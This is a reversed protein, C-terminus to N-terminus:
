REIAKWTLTAVVGTQALNAAKQAAKVKAETAAGFVGDVVLGGLAKQLAKVATGSSGRKLVVGWYPLLPHVRRELADWTAHDVVGSRPLGASGQFSLVRMETTAGFQGDVALAGLARQLVKVAAGTSGRRLTTEKLATFETATSATTVGAPKAAPAAPAATTRAASSSTAPAATTAPTMLAAWLTADAVGTVVLDRSRQYAKVRAVTLPGYTGDAKLGGLAKQLATVAEGKSWQTLRLRAYRALPSAPPVKTVVPKPTSTGGGSAPSGMLANWTRSDVVGTVALGKSKQYAKVRSETLPGFVGDAVVGGIAKQMATVAPGSSGLRLTLSAYAALPSTSSGPTVSGATSGGSGSTSGSKAPVLRLAIMKAWTADDAAKTAPVGNKSQWTGLAAATLPGFAGDPEAGIVKQLTVVDAGKAGQTLYPYGSSTVAPAPPPTPTSTPGTLYSTLARGTWWSTREYAGDWTFSFHIHDTHPVAGYYPRWPEAPKWAFWQQRNWIIYNIGFRRAMAGPRGQADPASLWRTLANGLALQAPDNANLIWDLARGEGHEAACQRLTGYNHTGYTANLLKAFAIVGPQTETLCRTGKQYPIVVDLASPLPRTPKPLPVTAAGASGTALPFAIVSASIAGVTRAARRSPLNPLSLSV